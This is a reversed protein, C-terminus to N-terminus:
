SRRCAATARYCLESTSEPSSNKKYQVSDGFLPIYCAYMIDNNSKAQCIFSSNMQFKINLVVCSSSFGPRDTDKASV